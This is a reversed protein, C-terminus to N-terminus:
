EVVLGKQTGQPVQFVMSDHQRRLWGWMCFKRESAEMEHMSSEDFIDGPM